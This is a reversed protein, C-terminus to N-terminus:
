TEYIYAYTEKARELGKENFEGTKIAYTGFLKDLFFFVIGFNKEMKGNDDLLNHHIDHLRRVKKLWTGLVPVSLMWFNSIHMADHMYNFGLIGWGIGVVYFLLQYFWSVSLFQMVIVTPAFIAIIPVLWELGIGGVNTRGATSQRYVESRM